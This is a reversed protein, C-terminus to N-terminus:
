VRWQHRVMKFYTKIYFIIYLFICAVCALTSDYFMVATVGGWINTLAVIFGTISNRIDLSYLSFHRKIYRLKLLSHFHVRDPHGLNTKKLKRRYISFLVETIPHICILVPAFASIDPHYYILAVSLWAISFGIFYAGGDGLFIKGFPWNIIFFGFVAAILILISNVIIWNEHLGAIVALAAYIMMSSLSALGNLGDIINISNAIGAIAFSTFAVSIITFQLLYDFGILDVRPLSISTFYFGILGCSMTALLRYMVAVSHTLDEILGFIFAPLGILLINQLFYRTPPDDTFFFAVSLGFVIPVGGIRPTPKNHISQLSGRIPSTIKNHWRKTFVVVCACFFVTLATALLTLANFM